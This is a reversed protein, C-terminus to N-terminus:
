IIENQIHARCVNIMDKKKKIFKVIILFYTIYKDTYSNYEIDM